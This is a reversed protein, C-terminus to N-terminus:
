AERTMAPNKVLQSRSAPAGINEEVKADSYSTWRRTPTTETRDSKHTRLRLGPIGESFHDEVKVRVTDPNGHETEFVVSRRKRFWSVAEGATAFWAGRSKMLEILDRYTSDWRREPSLSRDHWNVTLVGGYRGANEVLQLLMTHAKQPSLGLHSPYFLSTDMAHLPLELLRIVGIPRFAQTTGARYGVTENYGFTSDYAAGAEELRAPSQRNFYLWHMRVGIEQRGTLRGVEALEAAGDASNLWADIGHVGVERGHLILNQITSAIERAAYGSSRFAPASGDAVKGPYHKRPIVFFTSPLAGEIRLYRDDFRDWFDSAVGLYVFPLKAVALWNELLIRFPIEGRLLRGVSGFIARYMFGLVTHDWTHARISPHDVDHTLCAIFRFGQPVAPVEVLLIGARVMVDRLIAIHLELTPQAANSVPQGNTLLAGVEKFLDYGIRAFSHDELEELFAGCQDSFEETAFCSGKEEFTVTEGYLPLRHGDFRFARHQTGQQRVRIAHQDDFAGTHGGYVVILQARLNNEGESATLVVSYRGGPQYFEWPTKFLEFFERVFEHESLDAIVGIM